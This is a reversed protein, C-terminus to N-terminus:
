STCDLLQCTVLYNAPLLSVRLSQYVNLM